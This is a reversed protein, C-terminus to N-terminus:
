FLNLPNRNYKFIIIYKGDTIEIKKLKEDDEYCDEVSQKAMELLATPADSEKYWFLTINLMNLCVTM